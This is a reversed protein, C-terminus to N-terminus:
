IDDDIEMDEIRHHLYIMMKEFEHQKFKRHAAMLFDDMADSDEGTIEPNYAPYVVIHTDRELKKTPQFALSGHGQVDILEGVHFPQQGLLYCWYQVYDMAIVYRPEDEDMVYCQSERISQKQRSMLSQYLSLGINDKGATVGKRKSQICKKPRLFLLSIKKLRLFAYGQM